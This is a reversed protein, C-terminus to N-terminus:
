LMFEFARVCLTCVFGVPRVIRLLGFRLRLPASAGRYFMVTDGHPVLSSLHEARHGKNPSELIGFELDESTENNSTDTDTTRFSWRKDSVGTTIKAPPNPFRKSGRVKDRGFGSSGSPRYRIISKVRRFQQFEPSMRCVTNVWYQWSSISSYM